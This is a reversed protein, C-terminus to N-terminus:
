TVNLGIQALYSAMAERCGPRGAHVPAAARPYLRLPITEVVEDTAM